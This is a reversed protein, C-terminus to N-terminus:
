DSDQEKATSLEYVNWTGSTFVPDIPLEAPTVVHTVGFERQNALWQDLGVRRFSNLVADASFRQGWVDPDAVARDLRRRWDGIRDTTMAHWSVMQARMSLYFAENWMPPAAVIADEPSNSALWSLAVAGDDAESKWASYTAEMSSGLRLVPNWLVFMVTVIVTAFMLRSKRGWKGSTVRDIQARRNARSSLLGAVHILFLLPALVPLVRFPMLVLFGHLGLLRAGVGMIVTGLLLAQFVGLLRLKHSGRGYWAWALNFSVMMALILPGREGFSLPDMHHPARVLAVFAADTSTMSSTLMAQFQPIAGPLACVAALPLWILTQSRDSRLTLMAALLAGSGWLGVAPHFSFALGSLAAALPVRRDLAAIIAGLLLPWAIAKAEFLSFVDEGGVGMDGLGIWLVSALVAYWISVGLRRALIIILWSIVLWSALRGGWGIAEIDLQSAVPAFLTEFVYHESSRSSFTWDNAFSTPNGVHQLRPLYILENKAPVPIGRDLMVTGTIVLTGVLHRWSSLLYHM